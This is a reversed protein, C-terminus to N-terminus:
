FLFTLFPHSGVKKMCYLKRLRTCLSHPRFLVRFTASLTRSQAKAFCDAIGNSILVDALMVCWVPTLSLTPAAARGGM